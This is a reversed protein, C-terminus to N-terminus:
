KKRGTSFGFKHGLHKFLIAAPSRQVERSRLRLEQWRKKLDLASPAGVTSRMALAFLGLGVNRTLTAAVSLGGTVVWRGVDVGFFKRHSASISTLEKDHEEFAHDITAIVSDAVTSLSKPSALDIDNLGGRITERLTALAGNQRLEILAKPPVGSLMGFETSGQSEIAKSIVVNDMEKASIVSSGDADYEYKWLLYQWSTPADILPTGKYRSSRFLLDNTQMMRGFFAKYTTEAISSGYGPFQSTTVQIHRSFQESPSGTWDSDFLLRKHDVMKGVLDDVTTCQILFTHLEDDNAFTRGFMASAHKVVDHDSTIELAETYDAQFFMPDPVIVVIPPDVDALVLDRYCMASLAHKTVLRLAERPEMVKGMSLIRLVPDPLVITDMYLGVSCAINGMYSPFVDGGFVSKLCNLDKLHVEVVPGFHEWFEHMSSTFEQLESAFAEVIRDQSALHQAVQAPTLSHTKMESFPKGFFTDLIEFYEAQVDRLPVDRMNRLSRAGAAALSAARVESSVTDPDVKGDAGLRVRNLAERVRSAEPIKLTGSTVDEKLQMVLEHLEDRDM